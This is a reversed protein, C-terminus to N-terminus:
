YNLISQFCIRLISFRMVNSNLILCSFVIILIQYMSLFWSIYIYIYTQQLLVVFYCNKFLCFFMLHMYFYHMFAIIIKQGLCLYHRLHSITINVLCEIRKAQIFSALQTPPPHHFLSLFFLFSLIPLFSLFLFFLLFTNSYMFLNLFIQIKTDNGLFRTDILYGYGDILSLVM